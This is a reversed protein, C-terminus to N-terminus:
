RKFKLFMSVKKDFDVKKNKDKSNMIKSAAAIVSAIYLPKLSVIISNGTYDYKYDFMSTKEIGLPKLTIDTVMSFIDERTKTNKKLYNKFHETILKEYAMGLGYVRIMYPLQKSLRYSKTFTAYSITNVTNKVSDDLWKDLDFAFVSYQTNYSALKIYKRDEPRIWAELKRKLEDQNVSIVGKIIQNTSCMNNFKLYYVDNEVKSFMLSPFINFQKVQISYVENSLQGQLGKLPYQNM